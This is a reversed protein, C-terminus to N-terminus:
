NRKLEFFGDFELVLAALCRRSIAMALFEVVSVMFDEFCTLAACKGAFGAKLGKRSPM